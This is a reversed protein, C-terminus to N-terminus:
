RMLRYPWSRKSVGADVPALLRTHIRGMRVREHARDCTESDREPSPMSRTLALDAVRVPPEDVCRHLDLAAVGLVRIAVSVRSSKSLQSPEFLLPSEQQSREVVEVALAVRAVDVFGVVVRELVVVRSPRDGHKARDLGPLRRESRMRAAGPAGRDDDHPNREDRHEATHQHRPGRAKPKRPLGRRAGDRLVAVVEEDLSAAQQRRALGEIRDLEVVLHEGQLGVVGLRERVVAPQQALGTIGVQQGLALLEDRAGNGGVRLIGVRVEEEAEHLM